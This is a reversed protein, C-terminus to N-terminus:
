HRTPWGCLVLPSCFISVFIVPIVFNFLTLHFQYIILSFCVLFCFSFCQLRISLKANKAHDHELRQNGDTRGNCIVLAAVARHLAQHWHVRSLRRVCVFCVRAAAGVQRGLVRVRGSRGAVSVLPRCWHSHRVPFFIIQKHQQWSGSTESWAFSWSKNNFFFVCWASNLQPNSPLQVGSVAKALPETSISMKIVSTTELFFFSVEAIRHTQTLSQCHPVRLTLARHERWRQVDVGRSLWDENISGPGDLLFIRNRKKKVKKEKSVM